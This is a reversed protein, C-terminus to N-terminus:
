TPKVGRPRGVKRRRSTPAQFIEPISAGLVSAYGALSRLTLNEGGGEVSQVYRMSVGLEDALAQQTLGRAERFEALRRGADRLLRDPDIPKV